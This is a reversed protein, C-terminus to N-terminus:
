HPHEGGTQSDRAAGGSADRVVLGVERAIINQEGESLDRWKKRMHPEVEPHEAVRSVLEQASARVETTLAGLLLKIVVDGVPTDGDYDGHSTM